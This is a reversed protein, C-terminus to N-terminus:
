SPNGIRRDFSINALEPEPKDPEINIDIVSHICVVLNSSPPNQNIGKM